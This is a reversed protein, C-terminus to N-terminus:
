LIPGLFNLIELIRSIKITGGKVVEAKQHNGRDRYPFSSKFGLDGDFLFIESKEM